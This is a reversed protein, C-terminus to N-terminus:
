EDGNVITETDNQKINDDVVPENLLTREIQYSGTPRSDIRRREIGRKTMIIVLDIVAASVAVGAAIKINTFHEDTTREYAGASKLPWPAYRRGAPSMDFSNMDNWRMVDTTVSTFFLCFPFIGFAIIDFRRIDKAWQPFNTTDFVNPISQASLQIPALLFSVILFIFVFKKM